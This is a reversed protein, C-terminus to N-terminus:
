TFLAYFLDLTKRNGANRGLMEGEVYGMSFCDITFNRCGVFRPVLCSRLPAPSVLPTPLTTAAAEQHSDVAAQHLCFSQWSRADVEPARTGNYNMISVIQLFPTLPSPSLLNSHFPAPTASAPVLVVMTLPVAKCLSLCEHVHPLCCFFSALTAVTTTAICFNDTVTLSGGDVCPVISCLFQSLKLTHSQGEGETEREKESYKSHVAPLQM